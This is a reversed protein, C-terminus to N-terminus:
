RGRRAMDSATGDRNLSLACSCYGLNPDTYPRIIPEFHTQSVCTLMQAVCREQAHECCVDHYGVKTCSSRVKNCTALTTSPCIPNFLPM